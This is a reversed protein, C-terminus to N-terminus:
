LLCSGRTMTPYLPALATRLANHSMSPSDALRRKWSWSCSWWTELFKFSESHRRIGWSTVTFMRRHRDAEFALLFVAFLVTVFKRIHRQKVVRTNRRRVPLFGLLLKRCRRDHKRYRGSRACREEKGPEGSSLRHRPTQGLSDRAM